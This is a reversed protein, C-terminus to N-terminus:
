KTLMALPASPNFHYNLGITTEWIHMGVSLATGNSAIVNSNGFSFYDTEARASWQQTLAFESGYGVTWGTRDTSASLGAFPGVGTPGACPIGVTSNNCTASFKEDTWAGGAKAYVLLRNWWAYGVRGTVTALWSTSANCTDEFFPATTSSLPGCAIGGKTNTGSLDGELGYVWKGSQWNYGVDGGGDFGGIHPSVEGVPYGWNATGLNAGGFGGLYFGSWNMAQVAPPAKLIPAKAVMVGPAAAPTFQYRIGGSGSLGELQSGDRYDVRVFGLWGTGPVAGSVGLSYQGYTGFTSTSSAASLITPTGGVFACGPCSTYNSTENPGFEHWVSVAAFPQWVISGGNITEGVRLGVRGIDSDIQNLQLTGSFADFTSGATYYNFADSTIRSISVGASPEIFWNSQPVQWNYGISGAFAWGHADFNQGLLNAGPASLNSQFYEERVLGSLFFGGNTVAAYGGFFPVSTNSTFPGGGVPLGTIADTFSFAGNTLNGNAGLYGATTGVHLNWGGYNLKAADAGFQVGAFKEDVKQSCSVSGTVGAPFTAAASSTTNSKINVQGGVGRVWIGGGEQGPAPNPPAGVFAENQLLFATDAATITSAIMSSVSAPSSGAASFFFPNFGPASVVTCNQAQASTAAFLSMVLAIGGAAGMVRGLPGSTIALGRSKVAAQDAGFCVSM